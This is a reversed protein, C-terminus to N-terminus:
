FWGGPPKATPKQVDLSPRRSLQQQKKLLQLLEDRPLSELDLGGLDVFSSSSSSSNAPLIEQEKSETLGSVSPEDAGEDVPLSPAMKPFSIGPNFGKVAGALGNLSSVVRHAAHLKDAFKGVDFGDLIRTPAPAAASARLAEDSSGVGIRNDSASALVGGITELHLIANVEVTYSGAVWGTGVILLHPTFTTGAAASLTYTGFEFSTLDLPRYTVEMTLEGANGRGWEASELSSLNLFSLAQVNNTSDSYVPIAALSGRVGTMPYRVTVRLGCAIVRAQNAVSLIGTANTANYSTGTAASLLTTVSASEYQAIFNASVSPQTKFCFATSTGLMTPQFRRFATVCSTPVATGFGLPYPQNDFPMSLIKVYKSTGQNLTYSFDVGWKKGKALKQKGAQKKVVTTTTTKTQKPKKSQTPQKTTTTQTKIQQSM